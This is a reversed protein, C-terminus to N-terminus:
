AHCPRKCNPEAKLHCQACVGGGWKSRAIGNAKVWARQLLVVHVEVRQVLIFVFLINLVLGVNDQMGCVLGCGRTVPVATNQQPLEHAQSGVAAGQFPPIALLEERMNHM